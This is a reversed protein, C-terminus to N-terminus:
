RGYVKAMVTTGGNSEVLEVESPWKDSGRKFSLVPREAQTVGIVQWKRRELEKRYEPLLQAPKGLTRWIAIFVKKGHTDKDERAQVLSSNPPVPFDEPFDAALKAPVMGPGKPTGGGVSKSPGCGWLLLAVVVVVIGLGIHKRKPTPAM